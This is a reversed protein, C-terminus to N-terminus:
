FKRIGCTCVYVCTDVKKKKVKIVMCPYHVSTPHERNLLYTNSHICTLVHTHVHVHVYEYVAYTNLIYMCM